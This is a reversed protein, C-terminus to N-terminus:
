TVYLLPRPSDLVLLGAFLRCREHGCKVLVLVWDCAGFCICPVWAGQLAIATQNSGM